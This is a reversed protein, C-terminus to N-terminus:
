SIVLWNHNIMAAENMYAVENCIDKTRDGIQKLHKAVLVLHTAQNAVSSNRAVEALLEHFLRDYLLDLEDDCDIIRRATAADWDAFLDIASHLMECVFRAMDPLDPYPQFRPEEKLALAARAISCAHDGLRELLTAIKSASVVFRLDCATPAKLALVRLSHRDAALELADIRDDDAMVQRALESNSTLLARMAREIATEVEGGLLMIYDHMQRLDPEILSNM